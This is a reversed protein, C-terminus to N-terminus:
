IPLICPRSGFTPRRVRAAARLFAMRDGRWDAESPNDRKEGRGLVIPIRASMSVQQVLDVAAASHHGSAHDFTAVVIQEAARVAQAAHLLVMSDVGGSVALLARGNGPLADNVVEQIRDVASGKM